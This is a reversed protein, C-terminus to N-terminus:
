PYTMKFLAVQDVHLRDVYIRDVKLHM